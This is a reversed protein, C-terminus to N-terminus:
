RAGYNFLSLLESIPAPIAIVEGVKIHAETPRGNFWAIVWWLKTSGYFEYALKWYNDGLKWEYNVRSFGDKIEKTLPTWRQTRHQQLNLVGREDLFEQYLGGENFFKDSSDYRSM